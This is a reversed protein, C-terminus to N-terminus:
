PTINGLSDISAQMALLHARKINRILRFGSVCLIIVLIFTLIAAIMMAIQQSSNRGSISIATGFICFVAFAFSIINVAYFFFRLAISIYKDPSRSRLIFIFLTSFILTIMIGSLIFASFSDLSNNGKFGMKILPWIIAFFMVACLLIVIASLVQFFIWKRQM